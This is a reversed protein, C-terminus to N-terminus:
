FRRLERPRMHQSLIRVAMSIEPNLHGGAASVKIGRTEHGAREDPSM